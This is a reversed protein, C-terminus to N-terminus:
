LIASARPAFCYSFLRDGVEDQPAVRLTADRLNAALGSTADMRRSAAERSRLILDLEAAGFPSEGNNRKGPM